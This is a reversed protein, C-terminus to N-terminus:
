RCLEMGAYMRFSGSFSAQGWRQGELFGLRVPTRPVTGALFPDGRVAYSGLCHSIVGTSCWVDRDYCSGSPNSPVLPQIEQSGSHSWARCTYPVAWCMFDLDGPEPQILAKGVPLLVGQPKM